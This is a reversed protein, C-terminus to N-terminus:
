MNWPMEHMCLNIIDYRVVM